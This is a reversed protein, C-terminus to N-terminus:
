CVQRSSLSVCNRVNHLGLLLCFQEGPLKMQVSAPKLGLNHKLAYCLTSWSMHLQQFDQLAFCSTLEAELGTQVLKLLFSISTLLCPTQLGILLVLATRELSTPM